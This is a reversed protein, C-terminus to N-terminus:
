AKDAREHEPAREEDGWAPRVGTEEFVIEGVIARGLDKFAGLVGAREAATVRVSAILISGEMTGPMAYYANVWLGEERIALRGIQKHDKV